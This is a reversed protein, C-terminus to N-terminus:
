LSVPTRPQNAKIPRDTSYLGLKVFFWPAGLIAWLAMIGYRIFDSIAVEPLISKIGVQLAFLGLMGIVYAVTKKWVATKLSMRIYKGEILYAIGSGLLFGSYKYGEPQPFFFALLVPVIIALLWQMKRSLHILSEELKIGVVLIVIAILIGSIVDIPWHLGTYLRSLSILFVFTVAFAWFMPKKLVYALYGWLTASGQAHGSPFSDNPYHSGVEASEVFLSQVGEIGVPRSIAFNIKLFANIYTSSIFIYLLRFGVTKSFCWYILPLLLFYFEANGMFTLISAIKDLFPTQYNTIWILVDTQTM